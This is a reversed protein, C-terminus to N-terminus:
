RSRGCGSSGVRVRHASSRGTLVPKRHGSTDYEGLRTKVVELAKVNGKADGIIRHPASLFVIRAGEKGAAETEEEIAPGTIKSNHREIPVFIPTNGLDSFDYGHHTYKWIYEGDIM